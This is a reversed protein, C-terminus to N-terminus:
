PRNDGGSTLVDCRQAIPQISTDGVVVSWGNRLGQRCAAYRGVPNGEEIPHSVTSPQAFLDEDGPSVQDRQQRQEHTRCSPVDLRDFFQGGTVADDFVDCYLDAQELASSAGASPV